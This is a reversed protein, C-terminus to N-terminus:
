FISQQSSTTSAELVPTQTFAIINTITTRISSHVQKSTITSLKHKQQVLAYTLSGTGKYEYNSQNSKCASIFTWDIVGVEGKFAPVTGPIVFNDSAGRVVYSSQKKVNRSGGGSHCADAVVTIKGKEGVKARLQSLWKNLQDDLIHNQGEYKGKEYAFKADVPVWAEDFGDQEDGQLDTIRQGHGSFHIYIVDGESAKRVLADFERRIAAATAGANVLEVINQKQFGNVLLMDRVLPVDKDGNIKAWGSNAPYNGIGIVLARKTATATGFLLVVFSFIVCFRKM